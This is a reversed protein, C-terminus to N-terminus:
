ERKVIREFCVEGADHNWNDMGKIGASDPEVISCTLYWDGSQSPFSFTACLAFGTETVEYRYPTREPAAVPLPAGNQIVDLTTPLEGVTEFHTYVRWQMEQLDNVQKDDLRRERVESPTEIHTLGIGVFGIITILAAAGCWLSTREHTMWYDKADLLYYYFASGIVVFVAAAKLIFRVTIEGELFARIVAVLDGLLILGGVLLSLYIIWRTLSLYTQSKDSRRLKNVVRTFGLYAPFFVIVMAIGLRVSSAASELAWYSEAADPFRLNIIGFILVLLFSLSLYLTILAGLQLVFQKTNVTNM